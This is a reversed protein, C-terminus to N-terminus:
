SRVGGVWDMFVHSYALGCCRPTRGRSKEFLSTPEKVDGVLKARPSSPSLALPKVDGGLSAILEVNIRSPFQYTKM